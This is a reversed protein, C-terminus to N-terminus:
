GNLYGRMLNIYCNEQAARCVHSFVGASARAEASSYRTPEWGWRSHSDFGWGDPHGGMFLAPLHFSFSGGARGCNRVRLLLGDADSIPNCLVLTCFSVERVTVTLDTLPIGMTM